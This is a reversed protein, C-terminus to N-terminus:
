ILFSFQTKLVEEKLYKSLAKGSPLTWSRSDGFEIMDKDNRIVRTVKFHIIYLIIYVPVYRNIFFALFYSRDNVLKDIVNFTEHQKM